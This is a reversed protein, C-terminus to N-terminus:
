IFIKSVKQGVGEYEERKELWDNRVLQLIYKTNRRDIKNGITMRTM